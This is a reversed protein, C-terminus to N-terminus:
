AKMKIYIKVPYLIRSHCTKRKGWFKVSTAGSDRAGVAELPFDFVVGITTRRFTIHVKDRAAKLIKEKGKTKLRKVIIHRHTAKKTNLKSPAQYLKQIQLNTNWQNLSCKLWWKKLFNKEQGRRQREGKRITNWSYM